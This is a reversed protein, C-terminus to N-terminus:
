PLFACVLREIGIHERRASAQDDHQGKFALREQALCGDM